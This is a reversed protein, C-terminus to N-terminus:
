VDFITGAPIDSQTLTDAAGPRWFMATKNMVGRPAADHIIALLRTMYYNNLLTFNTGMGHTAMWQKVEANSEWCGFSVQAGYPRITETHPFSLSLPLSPFAPLSLPPSLSLQKDPRVEDGGGHFVEDPFKEAVEGLLGGLFEYTQPRDVRLPGTNDTSPSPCSTLLEAPGGKGWSPFTHGPSDFEPVVRVGRARAYDVIGAVDAPSHLM